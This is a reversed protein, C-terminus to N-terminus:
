NVHLVSLSNVLWQMGAESYSDCVKQCGPCSPNIEQRADTFNIFIISMEVKQGPLFAGDWPRMRSIDRRTAHEQLVFEKNMIKSHGQLNRFQTELVADFADWSAVFQLHVPFLRGIADELLFPEQILGRELKSPLASEIRIVTRYIRTNLNFIRSMSTRLEGSLRRLWNLNLAEAIGAAYSRTSSVLETNEQLRSQINKLTINQDELTAQTREEAANQQDLRKHNLTM